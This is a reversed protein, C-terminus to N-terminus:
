RRANFIPCSLQTGAERRADDIVLGGILRLQHCLLLAAVGRVNRGQSLSLEVGTGPLQCVIPRALEHFNWGRDDTWFTDEFQHQVYFLWVGFSAVLFTIPLHVLLFPGAGILWIMTSVLLVIAVNTTMTSLWPQWGSRMLGFPLRQRLIFHY